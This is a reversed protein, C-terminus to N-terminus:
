VSIPVTEGPYQLQCYLVIREVMIWNLNVWAPPPAHEVMSKYWGKMQYWSKKHPPPDSALRIEIEGGSEKMRRRWDAKLRANIARGPCRILSQNQAPYQCALVRTDVLRWM